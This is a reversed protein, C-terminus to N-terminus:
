WRWTRKLNFKDKIWNGSATTLMRKVVDLEARKKKWCARMMSIKKKRPGWKGVLAQGTM